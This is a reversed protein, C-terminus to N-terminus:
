STAAELACITACPAPTLCEDCRDVGDVSPRSRHLHHLSEEISNVRHLWRESSAEFLSARRMTVQLRERLNTIMARLDVIAETLVDEKVSM